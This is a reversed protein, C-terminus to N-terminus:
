RALWASPNSVDFNVGNWTVGQFVLREGVLAPNAPISVTTTLPAIGSLLPIGVGPIVWWADGFIPAVLPTSPAGGVILAIVGSQGALAVDFPTGLPQSGASLHPMALFSTTIGAAFSGPGAPLTVTPAIRANGTGTVGGLLTTDDLLRLESANLQISPGSSFSFGQLSGGRVQLESDTVTAAATFTANQIVTTNEIAARSDDFALAGAFSCDRVQVQACSWASIRARFNSAPTALQEVLVPGDCDQLWIEAYFSLSLLTTQVTAGFLSFTQNAALNTVRVAQANTDTVITAGPDCLITLGKGDVLVAGSYFGTRVQLTAGDPVTAAATVLSTYDTGPGNNSDVVFTQAHALGAPISLALALATPHRM